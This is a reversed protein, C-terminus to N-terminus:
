LDAPSEVAFSSCKIIDIAPQEPKNGYPKNHQQQVTQKRAQQRAIPASESLATLLVEKSWKWSEIEDPLVKDICLEPVHKVSYQYWGLTECQM